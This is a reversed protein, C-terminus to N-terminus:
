RAPVATPRQAVTGPRTRYFTVPGAKLQRLENRRMARVGHMECAKCDFRLTLRDDGHQLV